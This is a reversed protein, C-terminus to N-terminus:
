ARNGVVARISERRAIIIHLQPEARFCRMRTEFDFEPTGKLNFILLSSFALSLFQYNILTSVLATFGFDRLRLRLRLLDFSESKDNERILISGSIFEYIINQKIFIM